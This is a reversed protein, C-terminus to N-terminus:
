KRSILGKGTLVQGTIPVPSPSHYFTVYDRNSRIDIRANPYCRCADEIAKKFHPKFNRLEKIGRGFVEHLAEYRIKLPQDIRHLRYALWCYLDMARPNADLAILARFDLPVRHHKLAEMYGISLTMEPQWFTLQNPNRELWFSVTNAISLKEQRAQEEGWTGLSINAAAINKVQETIEKGNKGGIPIGNREMFKRLSNGMDVTPSSTRIAQDNIYALLLRAKAGSPIERKETEAPKDPNILRGTEIMLSTTRGKVSHNVQYYDTHRPLSRIPLFCQLFVAHQFVIDGTRIISNSITDQIEQKSPM